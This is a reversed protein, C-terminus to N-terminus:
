SPTLRCRRVSTGPLYDTFNGQEDERL